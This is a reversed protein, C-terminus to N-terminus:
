PENSRACRFGLAAQPSGTQFRTGVASAFPPLTWSGGRVARYGIPVAASSRCVPDVLLHDAPQFCPDDFSATVGDVWESVSGGLNRVGLPTTDGDSGGASLGWPVENGDLYRCVTSEIVDSTVSSRGRAVIAHRCVDDNDASEGWPYTPELGANSAAYEWEAETPLRAGRARCLADALPYDICNAPLLPADSRPSGYTCANAATSPDPDYAFPTGLVEPLLEELEALTVEDEDFFFPSLQVLREPLASVTPTVVLVRHDGLLFAGGPICRMGPPPEGACSVSQAPGWSGPERAGAADAGPALEADAALAGQGPDCSVGQAADAPIGFCDMGLELVVETVGSAAPLWAVAELRSPTSPTGDAEVYSNRYLVARLKLRRGDEPAVIGFSAPWAEPSGVVLVRRCAASGSTSCASAGREDLIEVLLRDGFTPVPADTTVHVLWQARTEAEPNCGLLAAGLLSVSLASRAGAKV